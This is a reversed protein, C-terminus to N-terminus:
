RKRAWVNNTEELFRDGAPTLFARGDNITRRASRLRSLTDALELRVREPRLLDVRQMERYLAAIYALAHYAVLVSRLTRPETRLPSKFSAPSERTLPAACDALDLYKHAAEHVLGEFVFDPDDLAIWVVGPVRPDSSSSRRSRGQHPVITSVVGRAWDLVEPLAASAQRLRVNVDDANRRARLHSDDPGVLVEGTVLSFASVDAAISSQPPGLHRRIESAKHRGEALAVGGSPLWVSTPRHVEVEAELDPEHRLVLISLALARVRSDESGVETANAFPACLWDACEHLRWVTRTRVREDVDQWGFDHNLFDALEAYWVQKSPRWHWASTWAGAHSSTELSQDYFQM